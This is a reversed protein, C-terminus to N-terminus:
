GNLYQAINPDKSLEVSNLDCYIDLYIVRDKPYDARAYLNNNEIYFYKSEEKLSYTFIQTSSTLSQINDKLVRNVIDFHGVLGAGSILVNDM